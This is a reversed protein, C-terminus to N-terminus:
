PKQATSTKIQRVLDALSVPKELYTVNQNRARQQLQTSGFATVLICSTAPSLRRQLAIVDMGDVSGSMRLDSIVVDYEDISSILRVAEEGSGAEDVEYQARRLYVAINARTLTDDEVLLIRTPM